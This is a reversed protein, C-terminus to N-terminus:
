EAILAELAYCYIQADECTGFDAACEVGGTKYHTYVSYYVAPERFEDLDIDDPNITSMMECARKGDETTFEVVISLETGDYQDLDGIDYLRKM